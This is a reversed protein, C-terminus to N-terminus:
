PGQKTMLITHVHHDKFVIKIMYFSSNVDKFNFARLIQLKLGKFQHSLIYEYYFDLQLIMTSITNQKATKTKTM